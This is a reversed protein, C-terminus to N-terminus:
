KAKKNKMKEFLAKKKDMNKQPLINVEHSGKRWPQKPEDNKKVEDNKIDKESM